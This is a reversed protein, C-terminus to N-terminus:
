QLVTTQLILVPIREDLRLLLVVLTSAVAVAHLVHWVRQLEM